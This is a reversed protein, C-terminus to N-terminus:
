SPKANVDSPLVPAVILEYRRDRLAQEAMVIQHLEALTEHAIGMADAGRRVRDLEEATLPGDSACARLTEYLIARCIMSMGPLEMLNELTDTDDYTEIVEIVRPSSGAATHYGILWERQRPTLRGNGGACLLVATAALVNDDETIQDYLEGPAEWNEWGIWRLAALRRREVDADPPAAVPIRASVVTGGGGPSDIALQGGLASVRDALGELGSGPTARAGGTGDDSVAVHLIGEAVWARVTAQDADAHKNVNALAEAVLYYAGVEVAEPLRDPVDLHLDVPVGPREALTELSGGLGADYVIAPHIGRALERLEALADDLERAAEGLLQCMATDGAAERSALRLMLALGVLRQQAGDHLNREVRRLESDGAEVIRARSAHVEALQAHLQAKLRENDIALSAAATAAQLREPDQLLAPDHILGAVPKDGRAISTFARSAVGTRTTVVGLADIWGGTGVRPYVIELEPDALVRRLADRVTEGAGTDLNMVLSVPQDDHRARFALGGLRGVARGAGSGTGM